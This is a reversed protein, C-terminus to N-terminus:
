RIGPIVPVPFGLNQDNRIIRIDNFGTFPPVFPPESGNDIIVLEYDETHEMVAQICEYSMEQRNLVPIIISIM